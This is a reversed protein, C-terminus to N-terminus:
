RCFSIPFDKVLGGILDRYTAEGTNWAKKDLPDICTLDVKGLREAKLVRCLVLTGEPFNPKNTKTAGQFEFSKLQAHGSEANIDLLYQEFSKQVVM